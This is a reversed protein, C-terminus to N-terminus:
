TFSEAAGPPNWSHSWLRSIIADHPMPIVVQGVAAVHVSYVYYRTAGAAIVTTGSALMLGYERSYKYDAGM